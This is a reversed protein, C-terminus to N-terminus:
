SITKQGIDLQMGGSLGFGDIKDCSNIFFDVALIRHMGPFDIRLDLSMLISSLYVFNSRQELGNEISEREDQNRTGSITEEHGLM